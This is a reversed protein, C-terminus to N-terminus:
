DASETLEIMNHNYVPREAGEKHVASPRISDGSAAVCENRTEGHGRGIEVDPAHAPPRQFQRPPALSEDLRVWHHTAHDRLPILDDTLAPVGSEPLRVGFDLGEGRPRHPPQRARGQVRREFGAQWSPWVPGQVSAIM